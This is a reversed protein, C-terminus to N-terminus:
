ETLRYRGDELRELQGADVLRRTITYLYNGGSKLRSIDCGRDLLGARIEQASLPTESAKLLHIVAKPMSLDSFHSRRLVDSRKDGRLTLPDGEDSMLAQASAIKERLLEQRKVLELMDSSIQRLEENWGLIHERHRSDNNQM